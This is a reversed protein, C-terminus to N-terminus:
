AIFHVRALASGSDWNVMGHAEGFLLRGQSIGAVGAFGAAVIFSFRLLPCPTLSCAAQLLSPMCHHSLSAPIYPVGGATHQWIHTWSVTLESQMCHAWSCQPSAATAGQCCSVWACPVPITTCVSVVLLLFLALCAVRVHYFQRPVLVITPVFAPVIIFCLGAKGECLVHRTCCMCEPLWSLQVFCRQQSQQTPLWVYQSAKCPICVRGIITRACREVVGSANLRCGLWGCRPARDGSVSACCLQLSM